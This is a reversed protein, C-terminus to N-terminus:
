KNKKKFDYWKPYEYINSRSKEKTKSIGGTGGTHANLLKFRPNKRYYEIYEIEKEYAEQETKCIALIQKKYFQEGNTGIDIKLKVGSGLYKDKRISCNCSRKGVYVNKNVTNFILYVYHNM